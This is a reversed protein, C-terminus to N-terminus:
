YGKRKGPARINLGQGRVLSLFDLLLHEKSALLLHLEKVLLKVFDEELM